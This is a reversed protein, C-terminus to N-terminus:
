ILGSDRLAEIKEKAREVIRGSAGRDERIIARYQGYAKTYDGLREYAEGLLFRAKQILTSNTTRALLEDLEEVATEYNGMSFEDWAIDYLANALKWKAQGSLAGRPFEDLQKYFAEVAQKDMGMALYCQGLNFYAQQAASTDPYEEVAARYLQSAVQFDNDKFYADAVAYRLAGLHINPDYRVAAKLREEGNHFDKAAIAEKGKDLLQAAVARSMEPKIEVARKLQRYSEFDRELSLLALGYYYYVEAGTIDEGIAHRCLTVVERYDGHEYTSRITSITQKEKSCGFSSLFLCVCLLLPACCRAAVRFFHPSVRAVTM